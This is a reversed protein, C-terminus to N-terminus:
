IRSESDDHTSHNLVAILEAGFEKKQWKKMEDVAYIEDITKPNKEALSKLAANNLLVGADMKLFDSKRRRWIKLKKMRETAGNDQFCFPKCPYEALQYKSQNMARVVIEAIAKGHINFQKESLEASEKLRQLTSLRQRAINLLSQTSIIKFPPRDKQRAIQLRYQLLAELIALRKPDLQGTGKVRTFLPSDNSPHNRVKTLLECEELAWELRNKQILEDLQREYLGILYRVDNAAYAIMEESLPRQSWDKKQFKKELAVNFTQRLVADLGSEAYGLLRAALETDFLNEVPIQYDRYLSRIDYDAGHMIKLIRPNSLIAALPSMNQISLPDIIYVGNRDAMQILCIKERFHFMSDAELDMAVLPEDSLRRMASIFSADTEIFCPAESDARPTPKQRPTYKNQYKDKVKSNM